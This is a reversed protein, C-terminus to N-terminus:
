EFRANEPLTLKNLLPLTGAVILLSAAIGLVITLVYNLPPFSLPMDSVAKMLLQGYLTGAGAALVTTVILPIAAELLVTARLQALRMGTLRLLAFPRKRELLSDAVSVLLGCGAIVLTILIGIGALARLQSVLAVGLGYLEDDTFINLTNTPSKAFATRLRETTSTAGDTMVLLRSPALGAADATVYQWGESPTQKQFLANAPIAMFTDSSCTEFGLQRASDCPLLLDPRLSEKGAATQLTVDKLQM